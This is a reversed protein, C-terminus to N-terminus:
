NSLQFIKSKLLEFDVPKTLFDDAGLQKANSMNQLDGYASVMMIKLYPYKEKTIKLLELGSMEPMNIDSLLLVYDMPNLTAMFSLAEKASFAFHLSLLNEKLEKRFKLKFLLEVDLEDDVILVKM